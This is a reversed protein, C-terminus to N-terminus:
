FNEVVQVLESNKRSYKKIAASVSAKLSDNGCVFVGTRSTSFTSTYDLFVKDFDPRSYRFRTFGTGVNDYAPFNGQSIKRIIEPDEVPRTIHIFISLVSEPISDCLDSFIDEFWRIDTRDRCVWYIIMKKNTRGQLYSIAFNKIISIFPTIGIGSVVFICTEFQTYQCCPSVYPGDVKIVIEKSTKCYELVKKSWDGCDKISLEIHEEELKPCSSITIPHYQRNVSPFNVMVYEGPFYEFKKKIKLQVGDQLLVLNVVESRSIFIRFIKEYLFLSLPILLVLNSYYPYCQGSGGKVFCGTGHLLYALFVVYYLKHSLTFTEYNFKVFYRSSLFTIVLVCCIMINGTIGAITRTHIQFATGQLIRDREIVYFNIYHSVSHIIGLIVTSVGSIVHLSDFFSFLRVQRRVLFRITKKCVSLILFFPMFALCLGAGRSILVSSGIKNLLALDTNARQMAFGIVFVTIQLASWLLIQLRGM